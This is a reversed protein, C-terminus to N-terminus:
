RARVHISEGVLKWQGSIKELIRLESTYTKQGNKATSVEDHSVWADNGAIHMKYNTNASTGGQGMGAALGLMLAPPVDLVQGTGTSILIRSYPQPHWCAAHASVDGSRWTASEKELVQRIAAAEDTPASCASVALSGLLMLYRKM